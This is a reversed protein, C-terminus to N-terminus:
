KRALRLIGDVLFGLTHCFVEETAESHEIAAWRTVHSVAHFCEHALTAHERPTQPKRPLWIVPCYPPQLACLGRQCDNSPINKNKTFWRIYQMGLEHPGIVIRVAYDFVGCHLRFIQLGSWRRRKM